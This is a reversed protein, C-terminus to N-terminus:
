RESWGWPIQHRKRTEIPVQARLAHMCLLVCVYVCNFSYFYTKNFFCAFCQFVQSLLITLSKIKVEYPLNGSKIGGEEEEGGRGAMDYQATSQM